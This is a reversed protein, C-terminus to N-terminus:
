NSVGNETIIDKYWYYSLKPIRKQTPYDVRILGFRPKYGHHWEFNDLLSWVFYGKLNVGQKIAQYAALFHGRLYDIREIDQVFGNIDPQDETACGSESIFVKPNHYRKKINILVETLGSPFVGWGNATYGWMPLTKHSAHCKLFGGDQDFSIVMSRYYNVGLFDIPQSILEMDGSQIKPIGSELWDFLMQPYKGLFLADTFFGTDMEYYRQSALQDQESQSASIVNECDLFIGMEGQYGGYRFVKIAKGHAVLLNHAVQFATTYDPIGPAMVASGYGLFAMVRPENQSGWIKVRDRLQDFVVRAYEAFWDTTNLNEWGGQDQIKQPLDWHYLTVVPEINAEMLQDVLRDYFDLGATNIQGKGDPLIRSWSISFRHAKLGMQAALAVDKPYLHYHDCAVDGNDQNLITGTRHSFRDWISEGKGDENWAGEIQYASAATGWLFNKPFQNFTM